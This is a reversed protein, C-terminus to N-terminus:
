KQGRKRIDMMIPGISWDVGSVMDVRLRFDRATERIDVMGDGFFGRQPSQTENEPKSRDMLKKTSFKVADRGKPMEPRMQHFTSMSDGYEANLTFTEAWPFAEDTYAFGTEHRFISTGDSMLPQQDNGYTFLCSRSLRGMSWWKEKYNYIAVYSNVGSREASAFFWWVENKNDVVGMFAQAISTSVVIKSKIWDLIECPVPITSNGNFLWVGGLAAWIVGEPIRTISLPSLPVPADAIQEYSYVYPLGVSEIFYNNALTAMYIGGFFQHAAVIPSSPELDYYGAKSVLNAFDWDTDDEQDCWGFQDFKGGMGFLMIHREPTIIFSRNAVPANPRATLKTAPAAPDWGLLRGDYSTMVRLQDGWNDMSFTEAYNRQRNGGPRPTGYKAYSFKADGYGGINNPPTAMGGVPTIDILNGEVEVYCHYECLYATHIVGLNTMWRHILRVKSAFAPLNIKVWGGIPMITDGDWRVLHTERWNSTRRAKSLQNVVGAPIDIPYMKGM